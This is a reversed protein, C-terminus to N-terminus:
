KFKECFKLIEREVRNVSLSTMLTGTKKHSFNKNGMLEDPTEVTSIIKNKKCWPGYQNKDSPGFLGITPIGALASLHMLGSDNGLFYKCEKIILFVEELNIIGALNLVDSKSFEKSINYNNEMENKSGLLIFKFKSFFSQKRLRSILERFRSAPWQKGIWNTSTSIAFLSHQTKLKLIKILFKKKSKSETMLKVKPELVLDGILKSYNVIKHVKKNNIKKTFIKRNKTILFYSIATGRLDVIHDWCIFFIKIWLFFWHLSYKKKKLPLVKDINQCKKFIEAPVEGCVFTLRSKQYLSKYYHNIGSSLIADGLRNSSIILIKKM